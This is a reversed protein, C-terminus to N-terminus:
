YETQTTILGCRGGIWLRVKGHDGERNHRSIFPPIVSELYLVRFFLGIDPLLLVTGSLTQYQSSWSVQGAHDNNDYEELHLLSWEKLIIVNQKCRSQVKSLTTYKLLIIHLHSISPLEFSQSQYHLHLHNFCM